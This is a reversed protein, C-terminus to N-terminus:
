SKARLRFYQDEVEKTAQSLWTQLGDLVKVIDRVQGVDVVGTMVMGPRPDEGLVQKFDRASKTVFVFADENPFRRVAFHAMLNRTKRFEKIRRFALLNNPAWDPMAHIITEVDGISMKATKGRWRGPLVNAKELVEVFRRLNFDIYSYLVIVSGILALDEKTPMPWEILIEPSAGVLIAQLYKGRDTSITNPLAV